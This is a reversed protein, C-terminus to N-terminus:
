APPTVSQANQEMKPPQPNYVNSLELMEQTQWRGDYWFIASGDSLIRIGRSVASEGLEKGDIIANSM